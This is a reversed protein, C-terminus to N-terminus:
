LCFFLLVLGSIKSSAYEVAYEYDMIDINDVVAHFSSNVETMNNDAIIRSYREKLLSVDDSSIKYELNTNATSLDTRLIFELCVKTGDVDIDTYVESDQLNWGDREKRVQFVKFEIGYHEAIEGLKDCIAKCIERNRNRADDCSIADGPPAIAKPTETQIAEVQPEPTLITAEVWQDPNQYYNFANTILDYSDTNSCAIVSKLQGCTFTLETYCFEVIFANNSQRRGDRYGDNTEYKWNAGLATSDHVDCYRLFYGKPKHAMDTIHTYTKRYRLHDIVLQMMQSRYAAVFSYNNGGVIFVYILNPLVVLNYGGNPDIQLFINFAENDTKVNISNLLTSVPFPSPTYRDKVVSDQAYLIEDSNFATEIAEKYNLYGQENCGTVYHSEKELAKNTEEELLLNPASIDQLGRERSFYWQWYRRNSIYKALFILALLLFICFLIIMVLQSNENMWNYIGVGAAFIAAGIGGGASANTNRRKYNAM